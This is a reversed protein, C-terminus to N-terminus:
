WQVILSYEKLLHSFKKSLLHFIKEFYESNISAIRDSLSNYKTSNHNEGTFQKFTASNYFHEMIRLSVKTSNLMSYLILRFISSGKLKKVQYDVKTEAALFELEKVPILKLISNAKM